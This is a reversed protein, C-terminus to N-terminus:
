NKLQVFICMLLKLIPKFVLKDSCYGYSLTGSERYFGPSFFRLFSNAIAACVIATSIILENIKEDEGIDTRKEISFIKNDIYEKISDLIRMIKLRDNSCSHLM